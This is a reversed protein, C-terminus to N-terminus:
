AKTAQDRAAIREDLQAIDMLLKERRARYIAFRQPGDEVDTGSREHAKLEARLRDRQAVLSDQANSHDSPPPVPDPAPLKRGRAIRADMTAIQRTIGDQALRNHESKRSGAYFKGATEKLDDFAAALMARELPLGDLFVRLVPQQTVRVQESISPMERQEPEGLKALKKDLYALEREAQGHKARVRQERPSHAALAGLVVELSRVRQRAEERRKTVRFVLKQKQEEESTPADDTRTTSINQQGVRKSLGISHAKGILANPKIGGLQAAIEQAPVGDNWQRHLVALRAFTWYTGQTIKPPPKQSKSPTPVPRAPAGAEEGQLQHKKKSKGALAVNLEALVISPEVGPSAAMPAYFRGAKWVPTLPCEAQPHGDRWHILRLPEVEILVDARQWLSEEIADARRRLTDRRQMLREIDADSERELDAIVAAFTTRSDVNETMRRRRRLEGIQREIQRAKIVAKADLAEMSHQARDHLAALEANAERQWRAYLAGEEECLLDDLIDPPEDHCHDLGSWPCQVLHIARWSPIANEQDDCAVVLKAGLLDHESQITAKAMLLWGTQGRFAAVHRWDDEYASFDLALSIPTQAFEPFM